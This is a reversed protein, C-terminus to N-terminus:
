DKGPIAYKQRTLHAKITSQKSDSSGGSQRGHEGEPAKTSELLRKAIGRMSNVWNLRAIPDSNGPDSTKIETPWEKIEAEIGESVHQILVGHSELKSTLEAVKTKETEYLLKFEGKEENAKQEAALRANEKEKEFSLKQENLRRSIIANLDEQTFQKESSQSSGSGGTSGDSEPSSSGTKDDTTSSDGNGGKDDPVDYYALFPSYKRAFTLM